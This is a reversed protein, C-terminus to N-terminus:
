PHWSELLGFCPAGGVETDCGFLEDKYKGCLLGAVREAEQRTEVVCM